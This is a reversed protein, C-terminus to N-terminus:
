ANEPDVWSINGDARRYIMNLNGNSENRFVFANEGSLDMHMVASSVSMTMIDKSLEAIVVPDDGAPVDEENEGTDQEPTAALVYKRAKLIETEPTQEMRDHHDRLKRKYRRLQKGVKEAAAEFSVYPDTEVADAVVMINKGVQISIHAKTQAKGHGEKSFTVTAYTGHNFYKSNLDELKDTVHTRLADGVDIQKGHVSLEM